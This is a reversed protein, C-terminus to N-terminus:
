EGSRYRWRGGELSTESLVLTKSENASWNLIRLFNETPPFREFCLRFDNIEEDFYVMIKKLFLALYFKWINLGPAAKFNDRRSPFPIRKKRKSKNQIKNTSHKQITTTNNQTNNRRKHQRKGM